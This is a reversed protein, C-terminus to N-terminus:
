NRKSTDNKLDFVDFFNPPRFAPSNGAIRQKLWQLERMFLQRSIKQETLKFEVCVELGRYRIWILVTQCLALTNM